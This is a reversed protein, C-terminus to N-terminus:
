YMATCFRNRTLATCCNDFDTSIQLLQTTLNVVVSKHGATYVCVCVAYIIVFCHCHSQRPNFVTLTFLYNNYRCSVSVDLPCSFRCVDAFLCESLCVSECVSCFLLVPLYIVMGASTYTCICGIM